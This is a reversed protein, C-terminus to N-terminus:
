KIPYWIIDPGKGIGWFTLLCQANSVILSQSKVAVHKQSCLMWKIVGFVLFKLANGGGNAVWRGGVYFLFLVGGREDWFTLYVKWVKKHRRQSVYIAEKKQQIYAAKIVPWNLATNKCRRVLCYSKLCDLANNMHLGMDKSCFPTILFNKHQSCYIEKESTLRIEHQNEKLAIPHKTVANDQEKPSSNVCSVVMEKKIDQPSKHTAQWSQSHHTVLNQWGLLDKM